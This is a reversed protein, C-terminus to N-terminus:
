KVIKQWRWCKVRRCEFFIKVDKKEKIWKVNNIPTQLFVIKIGFISRVHSAIIINKRRRIKEREHLNKEEKTEYDWLAVKDNEILKNWYLKKETRKKVRKHLWALCNLSPAEKSLNKNALHRNRRCCHTHTNNIAFTEDEGESM